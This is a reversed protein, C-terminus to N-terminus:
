PTPPQHKTLYIEQGQLKYMLWGGHALLNMGGHHIGIAAEFRRTNKARNVRARMHYGLAASGIAVVVAPGHKLALAKLMEKTM